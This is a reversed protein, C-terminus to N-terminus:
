LNAVDLSASAIVPKAKISKRVYFICFIRGATTEVVHPQGGDTSYIPSIRTRFSWNAGGDTTRWITVGTTDFGYAQEAPGLYGSVGFRDGAALIISGDSLKTLNPQRGNISTTNLLTPASWTAGDDASTASYLPNGAGGDERVIALWNTGGTNVLDAENYKRGATQFIVSKGVWTVGGDASEFLATQQDAGNAAYGTRYLNGGPATATRSWLAYTLGGYAVTSNPVASLVGDTNKISWVKLVVSQGVGILGNLLSFNFEGNAAVYFDVKSWTLGGDDSRAMIQRDSSAHSDGDSYLGIISAGLKVFFPFALYRDAQADIQKTKFGFAQVFVHNPPHRPFLCADGNLDAGTFEFERKVGIVIPM